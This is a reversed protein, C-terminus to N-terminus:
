LPVNEIAEPGSIRIQSQNHNANSPITPVVYTDGEIRPKDPPLASVFYAAPPLGFIRYEGRDDTKAYDALTLVREGDRYVARMARVWVNRAPRGDDLVRGTIVGTPIMLIKIPPPSQGEVVVVPTGPVNAARRGHEGRLYGQREAFVRYSGAALNHFVFRGNNDTIGIRYDVAAGAVKALVLRARAVPVGTGLAVVEGELTSRSAGTQLFLLLALTLRGAM